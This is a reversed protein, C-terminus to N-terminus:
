KEPARFPTPAGAPTRSSLLARALMFVSRPSEGVRRLAYPWWDAGFPMYLRVRHGARALREALDNRVGYLMEFEYCGRARGAAEALEVIQAQLRGDHTAFSPYFGDAREPSSLALQALELYRNRIARGSTYAIDPGAAFAGKVIRVFAGQRLKAELDDRTRRLYAQLTIAVPHGAAMVDDHVAITPGVVADDEMDLMMCSRGPKRRTAEGIAAAIRLANRRCLALDITAGIQTPDVSVHADFGLNHLSRAAAVKSLVTQEVLAPDAVYEGLFFLSPHIGRAPLNLAVRAVEDATRGTVFRRALSTAGARRQMVEKLWPNTALAIMARQWVRRPSGM